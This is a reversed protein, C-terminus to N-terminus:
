CIIFDFCDVWCNNRHQWFICRYKCYIFYTFLLLMPLIISFGTISPIIWCSIKVQPSNSRNCIYMLLFGPIYFVALLQLFYKLSYARSPINAIYIVIALTVFFQCCYLLLPSLIKDKSKNTSFKIGLITIILLNLIYVFSIDTLNMYNIFCFPIVWLIVGLEIKSLKYFVLFNIIM